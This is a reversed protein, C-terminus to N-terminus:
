DQTGVTHDPDKKRVPSTDSNIIRGSADFHLVLRQADQWTNVNDPEVMFYEALMEPTVPPPPTTRKEHHGYRLLNYMSWGILSLMMGLIILAYILLLRALHEIGHGEIMINQFRWYAIVWVAMTILPKIFYVFLGWFVITLFGYGWRQGTSQRDPRTIILPKM